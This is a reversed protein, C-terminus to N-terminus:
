SGTKHRPAHAAAWEPGLDELAAEICEVDIRIAAQGSFVLLITGSPPEKPLFHISLLNLVRKIESQSFGCIGVHHVCHVRLGARRRRYQPEHATAAVWDFRNLVMAFRRERPQYDIEGVAAVADQLLVSITDLDEADLAALKLLEM